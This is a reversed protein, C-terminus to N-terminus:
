CTKKIGSKTGRYFLDVYLKLADPLIETLTRHDIRRERCAVRIAISEQVVDVVAAVRNPKSRFPKLKVIRAFWEDSQRILDVQWASLDTWEFGGSEGYRSTPTKPGGWNILSLRWATALDQAARHEDATILEKNLMMDPVWANSAREVQAPTPPPGLVQRGDPTVESSKDTIRYQGELNAQSQAEAKIRRRVLQDYETMGKAGMAQGRPREQM